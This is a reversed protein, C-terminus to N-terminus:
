QELADQFAPGGSSSVVERIDSLFNRICTATSGVVGDIALDIDDWHSAFPKFADPADSHATVQYLHKALKSAEEPLMMEADVFRRLFCSLSSWEDVDASLARLFGAAEGVGDSLSLSILSDDPVDADSIQEDAWAVVDSLDIYGWSLAIAMEAAALKQTRGISM